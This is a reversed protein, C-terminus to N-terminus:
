VMTSKLYEDPECSVRTKFPTFFVNAVVSINGHSKATFTNPELWYRHVLAARFYVRREETERLNTIFFKIDWFLLCGRNLVEALRQNHYSLSIMAFVRQITRKVKNANIVAYLDWIRNKNTQTVWIATMILVTGEGFLLNIKWSMLLHAWDRVATKNKGGNWIRCYNWRKEKLNKKM